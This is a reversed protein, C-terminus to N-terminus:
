NANDLATKIEEIKKQLRKMEKKNSILLHIFMIPLLIISWFISSIVGGFGKKESTFLIAAGYFFISALLMIFICSFGIIKYMCVGFIWVVSAILGKILLGKWSSKCIKLKEEAEKLSCEICLPQGSEVRFFAGTDCSSCMGAGCNVCTTVAEATPHFKCNM